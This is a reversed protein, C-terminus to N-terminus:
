SSKKSKILTLTSKLIKEGEKQIDFKFNAVRWKFMQLRVAGMFIHAIHDAPIDKIFRGQKQGELVLPLLYKMRINMIETIRSNIKESEELLGDSFLAVAYYPQKKFFSFQAKFFAEIAQKPENEKFNSESYIQEFYSGVYDLMAIIVEEKSKFHRYIAGESFGMEKALNKITLGSVGATSLIKGAAETIEIQRPTIEFTQLTAM